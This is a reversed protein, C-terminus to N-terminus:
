TSRDDSIQIIKRNIEEKLTSFTKKVQVEISQLEKSSPKKMRQLSEIIQMSQLGIRQATQKLLLEYNKRDAFNDVGRTRLSQFYEENSVVFNTLFHGFQGTYLDVAPKLKTNFGKTGKSLFDLLHQEIQLSIALLTQLKQQLDQWFAEKQNQNKMEIELKKKVLTDLLSSFKVAGLSYLIVKTKATYESKPPIFKNAIKSIWSGWQCNYAKIDVEYMGPILKSGSSFDFTTLEVVHDKLYGQSKFGVEEENLSILKDEESQFNVEVKCEQFSSTVLWITSMDVPVYEKFFIEKDWGGFTLEKQIRDHLNLSMKSYRRIEFKENMQIYQYLAVIGLLIFILLFLGARSKRKKSSPVSPESEYSETAPTPELNKETEMPIPPLEESDEFEEVPLPPLEDEEVRDGKREVSKLVVPGPLGEAWILVEPSIKKQRCKEEIAELSYPGEHGAPLIIFWKLSTKDTWDFNSLTM